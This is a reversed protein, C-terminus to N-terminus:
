IHILSLLDGGGAGAREVDSTRRRPQQSGRTIDRACRRTVEYFSLVFYLLWRVMRVRTHTHRSM